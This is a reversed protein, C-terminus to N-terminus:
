RWSSPISARAVLLRGINKLLTVAAVLRRRAPALSLKHCVLPALRNM